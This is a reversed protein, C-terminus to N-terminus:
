RQECGGGHVIAQGRESGHTRFQWEDPGDGLWHCLDIKSDHPSSGERLFVPPGSRAALQVEAVAALSESLCIPALREVYIGCMFLM